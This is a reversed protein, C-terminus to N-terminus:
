EKRISLPAASVSDRRPTIIGSKRKTLEVETKHWSAPPRLSDPPVAPLGPLVPLGPLGPVAPAAPVAYSELEQAEATDERDLRDLVEHSMDIRRMSKIDRIIRALEPESCRRRALGHRSSRVYRRTVDTAGDPSFAICYSLPQGMVETYLLPNDWVAACADVHVWRQQHESYVETWINDEANWVWRVRSGLARCLMGFCNSSEGARGRRTRLLTAVDWYRPFRTYAQCHKEACQYLEVAEAKGAREESTPQDNGVPITPIKSACAECPPNIVRTFFSRSFYRLLAQVVCDQYGWESKTNVGKRRAQSIFVDHEEEADSYISKLDIEKLALDLLENKEWKLPVNSLTFLVDRFRPNGSRGSSEFELREIRLPTYSHPESSQARHKTTSHKLWSPNGKVAVGSSEGVRERQRSPKLRKQDMLRGFEKSLDGVWDGAALEPQSAMAQHENDPTITSLTATDRKSVNLEKTSGETESLMQKASEAPKEKGRRLDLRAEIQLGNEVTTPYNRKHAVNNRASLVEPSEGMLSITNRIIGSVSEDRTIPPTRAEASKFSYEDDQATPFTPIMGVKSLIDDFIDSFPTLLATGGGPSGLVIHGFLDGNRANVVWTGCDGRDLPDKLSVKLM